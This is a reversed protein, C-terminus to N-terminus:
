DAGRGCEAVLVVTTKVEYNVVGLDGFFFAGVARRRAAL